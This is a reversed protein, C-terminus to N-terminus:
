KAFNETGNFHVSVKTTCTFASEFSRFIKNVKFNVRFHQNENVYFATISELIKLLM